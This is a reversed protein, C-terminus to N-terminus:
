GTVVKSRFAAQSAFYDRMRARATEDESIWEAIIDRAGALAEEASAVGREPDIFASAESDLDLEGQDFLGRALPELGKERAIAARTRRKPRFPLYIDELVALTAAAQIKEKLSETLQGREEMAKLISERRQDMELLQGMRDRVATVAVEDLSGTVEKRYRSIFPVTAGGDLLDATAQVQGPSLGLEQAIKLLHAENM